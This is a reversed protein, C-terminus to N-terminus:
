FAWALFLGLSRYRYGSEGGVPSIRQLGSDAFTGALGLHRRPGVNYRLAGELRISGGWPDPGDGLRQYGPAVELTPVFRGDAPGFTLPLEVLGYFGPDW